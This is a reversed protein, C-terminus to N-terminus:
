ALFHLFEAPLQCFIRFDVPFILPGHLLQHSFLILEAFVEFLQLLLVAFFVLAGVFEARFFLADDLFLFLELLEHLLDHAILKLLHVLLHLPEHILQIWIGQLLNLLLEFVHLDVLLRQFLLQVTRKLLEFLQFVLHFHFFGNFVELFKRFFLFLKRFFCAILFTGAIAEFRLLVCQVLLKFFDM